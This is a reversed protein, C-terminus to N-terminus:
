QPPWHTLVLRKSECYQVFKAWAGESDSKLTNSNGVVFLGQKARTLAVNIRGRDALFGLEHVQNSRVCMLIVYDKERGAYADVTQIEVSKVWEADLQPLRPLLDQAAELAAVYFTIVAIETPDVGAEYLTSLLDSVMLIESLNLTSSGDSGKQECGATVNLFVFPFDRNPFPIDYEDEEEPPVWSSTIQGGYFERSPFEALGPHM